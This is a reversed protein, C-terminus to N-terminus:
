RKAALDFDIFATKPGPPDFAFSAASGTAFRDNEADAFSVPFHGGLDNWINWSFRELDNNAPTDADLDDNVGVVLAAAVSKNVDTVPLVKADVM